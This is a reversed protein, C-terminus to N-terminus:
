AMIDYDFMTMRIHLLISGTINALSGVFAGALHWRLGMDAVDTCLCSENYCGHQRVMAM